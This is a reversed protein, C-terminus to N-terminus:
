YVCSDKGEKMGKKVGKKREKKRKNKRKKKGEKRLPRVYATKQSVSLFLFGYCADFKDRGNFTSFSSSLVTCPLHYILKILPLKQSVSYLERSSLVDHCKEFM